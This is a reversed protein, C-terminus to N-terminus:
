AEAHRDGAVAPQIAYGCTFSGDVRHSARSVRADPLLERLWDLESVCAQEWRNAVSWMACNHLTIRYGGDGDPECSALYGEEDLVEALVAVRDALVKGEVLQALQGVRRDRHRDFIRSILEPEEAEVEELMEVLLSDSPGAFLADGAETSHHLEVPRGPRGRESRSAIYGATRLGALHQRVASPTIALEHAIEDASAEGHRKLTVLVNRQASSLGDILRGVTEVAAVM